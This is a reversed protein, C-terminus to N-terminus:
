SCGLETWTSHLYERGLRIYISGYLASNGGRVLMSHCWQMTEFCVCVLAHQGLPFRWDRSWDHQNYSLYPKIVTIPSFDCYYYQQSKRCPLLSAISHPRSYPRFHRADMQTRTSSYSCWVLAKSCVAQQQKCCSLIMLVMTAQLSWQLSTTVMDHVLGQMTVICAQLSM